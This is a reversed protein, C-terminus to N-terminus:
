DQGRCEGEVQAATNCAFAPFPHWKMLRFSSVAM